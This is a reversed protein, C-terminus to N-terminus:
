EMVLIKNNEMAGSKPEISVLYVGVVLGLQETSNGNTYEREILKRGQLDYISVRGSYEEVRMENGEIEVKGGGETRFELITGCRSEGYYENAEIVLRLPVELQRGCEDELVMTDIAIGGVRGNSVVEVGVSEGIGVKYNEKTPPISYGWYPTKIYARFGQEFAGRNEIKVEGAQLGGYRVTDWHEEPSRVTFGKLLVSDIQENESKDRIGYVLRGDQLPDIIELNYRWHVSDREEKGTIEVNEAEIIRLTDLGFTFEGEDQVELYNECGREVSGSPKIRDIYIFRSMANGGPVYGYNVWLGAGYIMMGFASDSRATHSGSDLEVKFFVYDTGWVKQYEGANVKKGDIYLTELGKEKIVINAFHHWYWKPDEPSSYWIYSPCYFKYQNFYLKPSQLLVLAADTTDLVGWRASYFYEAFVAPKDTRIYVATDSDFEYFSYKNVIFSTDSFIVRTSDYAPVIRCLGGYKPPFYYKNNYYHWPNYQRLIYQPNFIAETDLRSVPLLQEALLDAYFDGKSRLSPVYKNGTYEPDAIQAGQNTAYVVIKKNSTVISGTLDYYYTSSPDAVLEIAEWKNLVLKVPVYPDTYPQYKIESPKEIRVTPIITIETNDEVAAIAIASQSQFHYVAYPGNSHTAVIYFTDLMEIPYCLYADDTGIRHNMAVVNIDNDSKINIVKKEPFRSLIEYDEPFEIVAVSDGKVSFNIQKLTDGIYYSIEGKSEYGTFSTIYLQHRRYDLNFIYNYYNSPFFVIFEKGNSRTTDQSYIVGISIIYIFLIILKKM